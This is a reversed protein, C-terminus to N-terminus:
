TSGHYYHKVFEESVLSFRIVIVANLHKKVQTCDPTYDCFNPKMGWYCCKFPKKDSTFFKYPKEGIHYILIVRLKIM